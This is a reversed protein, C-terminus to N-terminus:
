PVISYDTGPKIAASIHLHHLSPFSQKSPEHYVVRCVMITHSGKNFSEVIKLEKYYEVIEPILFGFNKSELTKFPLENVPPPEKSHHAGLKFITKKYKSHIGCIVVRKSDLMSKLTVNTNRLGLLHFDGNPVSGQLDMPFINYDPEKGFCTLIVPRPFSYMACFNNLEEYSVKHKQHYHFYAVLSKQRLSNLLPFKKKDPVLLVLHGQGVQISDDLRCRVSVITNDLKSIEVVFSDSLKEAEDDSLCVGVLFPDQGLCFHRSSIELSHNGARLFVKEIVQEQNLSVTLYQKQDQDGFLM